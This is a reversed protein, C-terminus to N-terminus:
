YSLLLYHKTILSLKCLKLCQCEEPSSTKKLRDVTARIWPQTFDLLLNTWYAKPLSSKMLFIHKRGPGPVAVRWLAWWCLCVTQQTTAHILRVISFQLFVSMLLPGKSETVQSTNPFAKICDGTHDEHLLQQYRLQTHRPLHTSFPSTPCHGTACLRNPLRTICGLLWHQCTLRFQSSPGLTTSGDLLVEFPAGHLEVLALDACPFCRLLFPGPTRSSVPHVPTLPTDQFCLLSLIVEAASPLPSGASQPLPGAGRHQVPSAVGAPSHGTRPEESYSLSPFVQSLESFPCLPSSPALVDWSSPVLSSPSNVLPAKPPEWWDQLCRLPPHLPSLALRQGTTGLSTVLPLPCLSLAAAVPPCRGCCLLVMAMASRWSSWSTGAPGNRWGTSTRKSLLMDEEWCISVTGASRNIGDLKWYRSYTTSSWDIRSKSM